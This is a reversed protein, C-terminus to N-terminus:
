ALYKRIKRQAITVGYFLVPQVFFLVLLLIGSRGFFLKGKGSNFAKVVASALKRPKSTDNKTDIVTAGYVLLLNFDSRSERLKTLYTEHLMKLATYITRGPSKVMTLVTSVFIMAPAADQNRLIHDMIEIRSLVDASVFRPIDNPEIETDRFQSSASAADIVLDIRKGEIAQLVASVGQGLDQEIYAVQAAGSNKCKNAAILLRNVDRGVLILSNGASFAEALAAGVHSSAGLVLIHM